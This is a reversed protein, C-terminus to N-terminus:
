QQVVHLAVGPLAHRRVHQDHEPHRRPLPPAVQPPLLAPRRVEHQLHTRRRRPHRVPPLLPRQVLPQPHPLVKHEVRLRGPPPLRQDAVPAPAASRPVPAAPPRAPSAARPAPAAAPPHRRSRFRRVLSSRSQGSSVSQCRRAASSSARSRFGSAEEGGSPVVGFGQRPRRGASGSPRPGEAGHASGEGSGRERRRSLGRARPLEVHGRVIRRQQFTM